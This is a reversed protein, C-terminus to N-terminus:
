VALDLAKRDAMKRLNLLREAECVRAWMATRQQDLQRAKAKLRSVGDELQGCRVSLAWAAGWGAAMAMGLLWLLWDQWNIM